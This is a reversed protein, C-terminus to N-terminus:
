PADENTWTRWCAVEGKPRLGCALGYGVRVDAFAGDPHPDAGVGWCELGGDDSRIACHTEGDTSVSTFDGQRGEADRGWCEVSGTSAVVACVTDNGVAVDRVALGEPLADDSPWCEMVDTGQHIGCARGTGAAIFDFPEPRTRTSPASEVVKQEGVGAEITLWCSVAGQADLACSFYRGAVVQRLDALEPAPLLPEDAITSPAPWCTLDGSDRQLGCGHSFAHLSLTALPEAPGAVEEEEDVGFIECVVDGSRSRVACIGGWGVGVADFSGPECDDGATGLPCGPLSDGGPLSDPGGCGVLALVVMWISSWAGTRDAFRPRVTSGFRM